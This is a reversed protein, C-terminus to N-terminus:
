INYILCIQFIRVTYIDIDIYVQLKNQANLM